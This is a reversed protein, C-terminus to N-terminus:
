IPLLRNVSGVCGGQATGPIRRFLNLRARLRATLIAITAITMKTTPAVPYMAKNGLPTGVCLEVELEVVTVLEVLEVDILDPVVLEDEEVEVFRAGQALV